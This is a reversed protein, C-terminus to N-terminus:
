ISSAFNTLKIFRLLVVLRFSSESVYTVDIPSPDDSPEHLQYFAERVNQVTPYKRIGKGGKVGYFGTPKLFYSQPQTRSSPHRGSQSAMM